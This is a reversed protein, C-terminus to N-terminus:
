LGQGGDFLETGGIINDKGDDYGTGSMIVVDELLNSYLTFVPKKYLKKYTGM